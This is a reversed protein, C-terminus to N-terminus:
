VHNHKTLLQKHKNIFSLAFNNGKRKFKENKVAVEVIGALNKQPSAPIKILAIKTDFIEDYQTESGLLEYDHKLSDDCLEIVLDVLHRQCMVEQGFLGPVDIIGVGRLQLYKGMQHHAEGMLRNDASKTIKISDDAVLRHGGSILDLVCETKGVGSKGTLIVGYGSVEVMSGHITTQTKNKM